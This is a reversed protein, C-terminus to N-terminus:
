LEEVFINSLFTYYQKEYEDMRQMDKWFPSSEDDMFHSVVNGEPVDKTDDYILRLGNLAKALKWYMNLDHTFTDIDNDDCTANCIVWPSVNIDFNVITPNLITVYPKERTENISIHPLESKTQRSVFLHVANLLAQYEIYGITRRPKETPPTEMKNEM